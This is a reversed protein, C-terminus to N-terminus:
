KAPFPPRHLLLVLSCVCLLLTLPTFILRETLEKAFLNGVTNLGFVLSMLVLLGRMLWLPLYIRVRGIRQLIIWLFLGNLLISVSEFVLMDQQSNLRGGWVFRYDVVGTLILGHFIITLVFVVSMITGALRVWKTGESFKM